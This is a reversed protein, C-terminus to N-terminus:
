IWLNLIISLYYIKEKKGYNKWKNKRKKLESKLIKENKKVENSFNNLEESSIPLYKMKRKEKEIQLLSEEQIKRM